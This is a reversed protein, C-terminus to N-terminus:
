NYKQEVDFSSSVIRSLTETGALLSRSGQIREARSGIGEGGKFFM